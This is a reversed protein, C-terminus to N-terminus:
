NLKQIKWTNTAEPKGEARYFVQLMYNACALKEIDLQRMVEGPKVESTHETITRGAVDILRYILQGADPASFQINVISKAPNPFVNMGTLTPAAAISSSGPNPQLVGQTVVLSSSTFTSVMIEGVSWEFTNGAIVGSGGTCNIVDPTISQGRVTPMGALASLVCAFFLKSKM